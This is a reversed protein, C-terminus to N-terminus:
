KQDEKCFECDDPGYFVTNCKICIHPIDRIDEYVELVWEEPIRSLDATIDSVPKINYENLPIYNTDVEVIEGSLEWLKIEISDEGYYENTQYDTHERIYVEAIDDRLKLKV